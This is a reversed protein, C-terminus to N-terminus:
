ASGGARSWTSRSSASTPIPACTRSCRTARRPAADIRVTRADVAGVFGPPGFLQSAWPRGAADLTGLYLTYRQLLFHAAAPAIEADISRGIKRAGSRVGVRQQVAIEGAHFPEDRDDDAM